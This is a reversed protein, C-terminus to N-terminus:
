RMGEVVDVMEGLVRVAVDTVLAFYLVWLCSTFMFFIDVVFAFWLMECILDCCVM